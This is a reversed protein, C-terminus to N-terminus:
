NDLNIAKITTVLTDNQDMSASIYVRKSLPAGNCVLKVDINMALETQSQGVIQYQGIEIESLGKSCNLIDFFKASISFTKNTTEVYLQSSTLVQNLFLTELHLKEFKSDTWLIVTKMKEELQHSIFDVLENAKVTAQDLTLNKDISLVRRIIAIELLKAYPKAQNDRDYLFCADVSTDDALQHFYPATCTKNITFTTQKASTIESYINESACKSNQLCLSAYTSLQQNIDFMKMEALGGGNGVNSIGASAIISHICLAILSLIIKKM